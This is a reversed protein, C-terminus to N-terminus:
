TETILKVDLNNEKIQVKLDDVDEDDLNWGRLRGVTKICPMFTMIYQVAIVSLLPASLFLLKECKEFPSESIIRLIEEDNLDDCNCLLLSKVKASVSRMIRKCTRSSETDYIVLNNLSEFTLVGSSVSISASYYIELSELKSCSGSLRSLDLDGRLGVLELLRLRPLEGVVRLLEEASVKSLKMKYVTDSLATLGTLLAESQPEDLYVSNLHPCKEAIAEM